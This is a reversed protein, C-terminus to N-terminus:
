DSCAYTCYVTYIYYSYIVIYTYTYYMHNNHIYIYTHEIYVFKAASVREQWIYSFNTFICSWFMGVCCKKIIINLKWCFGKFCWPSVDDGSMIVFPDIPGLNPWCVHVMVADEHYSMIMNAFLFQDCLSFTDTSRKKKTIKSAM